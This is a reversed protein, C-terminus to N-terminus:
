QPAGTGTALGVLGQAVLVPLSPTPTKVQAGRVPDTDARPYTNFPRGTQQATKMVGESVPLNPTRINPGSLPRKERPSQPSTEGTYASKPRKEPGDARERRVVRDPPEREM